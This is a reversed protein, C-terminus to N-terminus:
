EKILKRKKVVEEISQKVNILTERNVTKYYNVEELILARLEDLTINPDSEFNFDLNGEFVPEDQEDHLGELYAHKIAEDATIRKAPNIILM